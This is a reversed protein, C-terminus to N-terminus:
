SRRNPGVLALRANEDETGFLEGSVIRGFARLKPRYAPEWHFGGRADRKAVAQDERASRAHSASGIRREFADMPRVQYFKVLVVVPFQLLGLNGRIVFEHQTRLERFAM